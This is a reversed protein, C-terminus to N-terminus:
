KTYTMRFRSSHQYFTACMFNQAYVSTLFKSPVNTGASPEIFDLSRLQATAICVHPVVPLGHVASRLFLWGAPSSVLNRSTMLHLPASTVLYNHMFTLIFFM